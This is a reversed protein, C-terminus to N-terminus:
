GQERVRLHRRIAQAGLMHASALLAVVKVVPRGGLLRAQSVVLPALLEARRGEVVLPVRSGSDFDEARV